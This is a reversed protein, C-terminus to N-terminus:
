MFPRRRFAKVDAATLEFWEGNARKSDFRKHWYAEIGVPDDTAIQHVLNAREPLQIALERERRGSANTRGIKFYRSSKLLYVFGFNEDVREGDNASKSREVVTTQECITLVDDFGINHRCYEAVKDILERKTGLRRFAGVSPFDKSQRSKIRLHGQVPFHGLERTLDILKCILFDDDHAQSLQNPEFGAERVADSWRVWYRGQWDSWKIGTQKAFRDTGLPVDGNATATRKIEDIIHQKDM